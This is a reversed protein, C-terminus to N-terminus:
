LRPLIKITQQGKKTIARSLWKNNPPEIENLLVVRFGNDVRYYCFPKGSLLSVVFASCASCCGQFSASWASSTSLVFLHDLLIRIKYMKPLHRKGADCNKKKKTRYIM